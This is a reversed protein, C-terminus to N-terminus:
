SWDASSMCSTSTLWPWGPSIVCVPFHDRPWVKTVDFPDFGLNQPDAEQPKMIQVHATWTIEVGKDIAEWLDRKPWDPDEGGYKLAEDANFQKQGHNAIFHYKIYVFEGKVNVRNIDASGKQYHM